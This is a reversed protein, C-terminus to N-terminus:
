CSPLQLAYQLGIDDGGLVFRSIGGRSGLLFCRECDNVGNCAPFGITADDSDRTESAWSLYQLASPTMWPLNLQM